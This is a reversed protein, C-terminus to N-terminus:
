DGLRAAAELNAAHRKDWGRANRARIAEVMEPSAKDPSGADFPPAPDYEIGLQIVKAMDEGVLEAAVAFAFDIGATVGGGTIRNRDRVIRAKVPTAGFLALDDHVAWYTTARYGQLLGAAGLLLAGTCVSTILKAGEAQRKLFSILAEDNMMDTQGPGGPVCIVDLQPCDDLTVSPLVRLGTDATVPELTHAVLHTTAGPLRAFVEWPGHADLQTYRRFVVIGIQM